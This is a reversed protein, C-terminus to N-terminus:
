QSWNITFDGPNFHLSSGIIMPIPIVLDCSFCLMSPDHQQDRWGISVISGLETSQVPVDLPLLNNKVGNVASSWATVNNPQNIRGADMVAETGLDGPGPAATYLAVWLVAPPTWIVNGVSFDLLLSRFQYSFSGAM